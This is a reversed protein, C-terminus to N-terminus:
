LLMGLVDVVASLTVVAGGGAWDRCMAEFRTPHQVERLCQLLSLLYRWAPTPLPQLQASGLFRSFLAIRRDDQYRACSHLVTALAGQKAPDNTVDWLADGGQSDLQRLLCAFVSEQRSLAGPGALVQTTVCRAYLDVCLSALEPLPLLPGPPPRTALRAVLPAWQDPGSEPVQM